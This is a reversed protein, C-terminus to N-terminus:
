EEMKILKVVSFRNHRFLRNLFYIFLNLSNSLKAEMLLTSLTKLFCRLASLLTIFEREMGSGTARYYFSCLLPRYSLGACPFPVVDRKGPCGLVPPEACDGGSLAQWQWARCGWYGMGPVSTCPQLLQQEMAWLRCLGELPRSEWCGDWFSSCLRLRHQAAGGARLRPSALAPNPSAARCPLLWPQEPCRGVSVMVARTEWLADAVWVGGVLPASM